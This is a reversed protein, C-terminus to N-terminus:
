TSKSESFSVSLMRISLYGILLFTSFLITVVMARPTTAVELIDQFLRGPATFLEWSNWREFRGLYIGFSGLGIASLTSIWGWKTNFQQTIYKQIEYLSVYGLMLGTWVFSLILLLDFWLPLPKQVRLHVLDTFLYPANPFFLLWIGISAATIWKIGIKEHIWQISIAILFPIWALFLNWILFFYSPKEAYNLRLLVLTLCFLSAFGLILFSFIQQRSYFWKRLLPTFLMAVLLIGMTLFISIYWSSPDDKIWNAFHKLM